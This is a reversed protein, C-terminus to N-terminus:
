VAGAAKFFQWKKGIATIDQASIWLMRRKPLRGGGEQHAAAYNLDSGFKIFNNGIDLTRFSNKLQGTSQLLKSTSSYRVVGSELYGPHTGKKPTHSTYRRIRWTGAPTRLTNPSFAHWASQQYAGEAKFVKETKQHFYIGVAKFFSLKKEARKILNDLTKKIKSVGAILVIQM